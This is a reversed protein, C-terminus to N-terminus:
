LKYFDSIEDKKETKGDSLVKMHSEKSKVTNVM